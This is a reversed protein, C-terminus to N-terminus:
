DKPTFCAVPKTQDAEIPVESAIRPMSFYQDQQQGYRDCTREQPTPHHSAGQRVGFIPTCFRAKHTGAFDSYVADGYVMVMVTGGTMFTLAEPSGATVPEGKIDEVSIYPTTPHEVRSGDPIESMAGFNRGESSQDYKAVTKFTESDQVLVAKFRVAYALAASKGDNRITFPITLKGEFLEEQKPFRPIFSIIARAAQIDAGAQTVAAAAAARSDRASRQLQLFAKQAAQTNLCAMYASQEAAKTQKQIEGYTHNMIRVQRLALYAYVSASIFAGITAAAIVRQVSHGKERYTRAHQASDDVAGVVVARPVQERNQQKTKQRNRIARALDNIAKKIARFM